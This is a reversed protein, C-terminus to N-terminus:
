PGLPRKRSSEIVSNLSWNLRPTVITTTVLAPRKRSHNCPSSRSYILALFTLFIFYMNLMRTHRTQQVKDEKPCLVDFETWEVQRHYRTQKRVQQIEAFQRKPIDYAKFM